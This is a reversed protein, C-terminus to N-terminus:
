VQGAMAVALLKLNSHSTHMKNFLYNYLILCTHMTNGNEDGIGDDDDDDDDDNGDDDDYDDSDVAKIINYM